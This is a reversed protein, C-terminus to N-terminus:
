TRILRFRIPQNLRIFLSSRLRWLKTREEESGKGNERASLGYEQVEDKVNNTRPRVKDIVRV